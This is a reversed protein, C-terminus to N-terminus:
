FRSTEACSGYQIFLDLLKDNNEEDSQANKQAYGIKM